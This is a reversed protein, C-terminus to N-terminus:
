HGTLRMMVGVIAGILLVGCTTAQVFFGPLRKETAERYGVYYWARGAIWVFGKSDVTVGHEANPWEYGQGPGGWGQIFNGAADFEMIPPAAPKGEVPRVVERPRTIIWVHDNSDVTLGSVPGCVWKSPITPWSPDVQFTPIERGPVALEAATTDMRLAVLGLLAVSAALLVRISKTQLM